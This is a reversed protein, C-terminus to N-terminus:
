YEKIADKSFYFSDKLYTYSSVEFIDVHGDFYFVNAKDNSHRYAISRFAQEGFNLWGKSQEPNARYSYTIVTTCDGGQIKQAPSDLLERNIPRDLSQTWSGGHSTQNMGYMPTVPCFSSALDDTPYLDFHSLYNIWNKKKGLIHGFIPIFFHDNDDAYIHNAISIQKLHSKCSSSNALDLMSNLSPSLLSILILFISIVVMLEILSFRSTKITQHNFIMHYPSIM